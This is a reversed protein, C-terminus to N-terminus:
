YDNIEEKDSPKKKVVQLQEFNVKEKVLEGHEFPKDYTYTQTEVVELINLGISIKVTAGDIQAWAHTYYTGDEEEWVAMAVAGYPLRAYMEKLDQWEALCHFKLCILHLADEALLIEDQSPMYHDINEEVQSAKM